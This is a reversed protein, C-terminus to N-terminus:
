RFGLSAAASTSYSFGSVRSFGDPWPISVTAVVVFTYSVMSVLLGTAGSYAVVSSATHEILMEDHVRAVRDQTCSGCVSLVCTTDCKLIYCGQTKISRM